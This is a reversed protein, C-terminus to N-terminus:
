PEPNAINYKILNQTKEEEKNRYEQFFLIVVVSIIIIALFGLLFKFFDSDFYQSM